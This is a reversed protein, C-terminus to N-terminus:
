MKMCLGRSNVVAFKNMAKHQTNQKLNNNDLKFWDLLAQRAIWTTRNKDKRSAGQAEMSPYIEVAANNKLAAEQM